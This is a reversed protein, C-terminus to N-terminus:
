LNTAVNILIEMYDIYLIKIKTLVFHHIVETCDLYFLIKVDSHFEDFAM